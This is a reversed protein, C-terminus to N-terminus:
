YRLLFATAIGGAFIATTTVLSALSFRALGSIGHGSTCGGAIRAGLLMTAGGIIQIVAIKPGPFGLNAESNQMFHSLAAASFMAGGSFVTSPTLPFDLASLKGSSYEQIKAEVWRAVDEYAASAGITHRTLFTTLLQASGILLGGYAPRVLGVEPTRRVTQDTAFVLQMVSICLPVWILLLVLPQIGLATAIDLPKAPELHQASQPSPPSPPSSERRFAERLRSLVPQLRLFAMAGLVGGFVVLLGNTSGMGAQVLSTGPCAGTTAMGIGILAGGIVNGDYQFLGLDPPTHYKKPM